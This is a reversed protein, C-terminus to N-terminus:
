GEAGMERLVKLVVAEPVDDALTVEGIAVPLVWRLRKGRRKKDHRMAAYIDSAPLPPCAVPLGADRLVGALEHALGSPARGLAEAIRAAVVTGIAVGEGHRVSFDSLRELAHGTTHGLNLVARRGREFPDEQVIDIKVQISRALQEPTPILRGAPGHGALERLLAADGIVGHKLVEALGSRVEEAPLTELTALDIFVLAPQKFAGVLNKGQPLDAGTKGGVSADTMSLLTTPAQVFRVGRMFTAAAFGALDGVVGGGLALVTGTRDLDGALLQDYLDRVTTLTKHEEGAPVTCLFPTYGHRRLADTVTTAYLPAVHTDSVVAVKTGEPVGAARLAGGLYPLTGAGIHIDYSGGPAEVPLSRCTSLAVVDDVVQDLTRGTTDIQWAIAAYADRRAALLRRIEVAPDPVSLLPRDPAEGVRALIEEADAQLCILVGSAAVAERNETDVLAGGGTAVVLGDRAALERCIEAEIRRFAGEGHEAFVRSISKGARSEIEDDMDVFPRGLRHAAERGVATKGTGMFGTLVINTV